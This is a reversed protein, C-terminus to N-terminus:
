ETIHVDTDGDSVAACRRAIWSAPSAVLAFGGAGEVRELEECDSLVHEPALQLEELAGRQVREDDIM